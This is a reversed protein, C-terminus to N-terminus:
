AVQVAQVIIGDADIDTSFVNTIKVTFTKNKTKCAKGNIVPMLYPYMGFIPRVGPCKVRVQINNFRANVWCETYEDDANYGNRLFELEVVDNCKLLDASNIAEQKKTELMEFHAIYIPHSKIYDSVPGTYANASWICYQFDSELIEDILRGSYKGAWFYGIPYDKKVYQSFSRTKGRLSEDISLNDYLEKVKNLDKSINKIYYYNCHTGVCHWKGYADMKYDPVEEFDWLTYFQTAFGIMQKM